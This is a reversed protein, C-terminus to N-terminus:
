SRDPRESKDALREALAQSFLPALAGNRELARHRQDAVLTPTALGRMAGDRRFLDNLRAWIAANAVFPGSVIIHKPLILRCLNGLTHAMIEVAEAISAQSLLDRQRAQLAFADEDAALDPWRRRLDPLLSWLAAATEVCGHQGCRCPRDGLARLRWHGIEGLFGGARDVRQGSLAGALGIGYGWHVLLVSEGHDSDDLRAGLEADLNRVIEVRGAEPGLCTPLPLAHIHPWRSSLLWQHTVPDVIGAISLVTGIHGAEAPLHVALHGVLTRLTASMQANNSQTDVEVIEEAIVRGTVDVVSGILSQSAIQVLIACLARANVVLTATPRGRGKAAGVAELVLGRAILDNVLRSTPTSRLRLRAAIERRSDAQGDAILAFVRARDRQRAGPLRDIELRALFISGPASRHSQPAKSKKFARREFIDQRKL